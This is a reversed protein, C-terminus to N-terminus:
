TPASSVLRSINLGAFWRRSLHQGAVVLGRLVHVVVEVDDVVVRVLTPGRM